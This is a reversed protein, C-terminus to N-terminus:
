FGEYLELLEVEAGAAQLQAMIIEAENEKVQELLVKPAAEVFRKAELLPLNAVARVAKILRIKEAPAFGTVLVDVLKFKKAASGRDGAIMAPLRVNDSVSLLPLLHFFQFILGIEDRRMQTREGEPLASLDRELVRVTGSSPSDIGAALHLLTSKGSGSRGVIAVKRGAPVGFSVCRLAYKSGGSALAYTKSVNEFALARTM